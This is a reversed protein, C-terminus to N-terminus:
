PLPPLERGREKLWEEMTMHAPPPIEWGHRAAVIDFRRHWSANYAIYDAFLEAEEKIVGVKDDVREDVFNRLEEVTIVSGESRGERIFKQFKKAAWGLVPVKAVKEGLIYPMLLVIFFLLVMLWQNDLAPLPPM